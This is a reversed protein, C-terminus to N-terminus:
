CSPDTGNRGPVGSLPVLVDRDNGLQPLTFVTPQCELRFAFPTLGLACRVTPMQKEKTHLGLCLQVHLKEALLLPM